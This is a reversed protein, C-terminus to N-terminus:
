PNQGVALFSSQGFLHHALRCDSDSPGFCRTRGEIHISPSFWLCHLHFWPSIPGSRASGSPTQLFLPLYFVMVQATAGYGIMAFVGGLFTSHQFLSFDVMPRQQHREVFAFIVFFVLSAGLRIL